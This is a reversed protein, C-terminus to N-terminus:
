EVPVYVASVQALTRRNRTCKGCVTHGCGFSVPPPDPKESYSPLPASTASVDLTACCASCLQM